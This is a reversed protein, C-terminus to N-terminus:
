PACHQAQHCVPPFFLLAPYGNTDQKLSELEFRPPGDNTTLLVMTLSHSVLPHPHRFSIRSSGGLWSWKMPTPTAMLIEAVAIARARAEEVSPSRGGAQTPKRGSLFVNFAHGASRARGPRQGLGAPMTASCPIAKWGSNRDMRRWDQGFYERGLMPLRNGYTTVFYRM